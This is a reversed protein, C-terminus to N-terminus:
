RGPYQVTIAYLVITLLIIVNLYNDMRMSSRFKKLALLIFLGLIPLAYLAVQALTAGQVFLLVIMSVVGLAYSIIMLPLYYLEIFYQYRSDEEAFMGRQRYIIVSFFLLVNPLLYALLDWELFKTQVYYSLYSIIIVKFFLQLVLYFVTQEMNLTPNYAVVIFFLYLLLLGFSLWNVTTWILILVVIMTSWYIHNLVFPYKLSKKVKKILVRELLSTLLLFIYLLFLPLFHFGTQRSGLLTGFILLSLPLTGWAFLPHNLGKTILALIQNM